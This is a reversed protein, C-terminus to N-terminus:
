RAPMPELARAASLVLEESSAAIGVYVGDIALFGARKGVLLMSGEPPVYGGGETVGPADIGNVHADTEIGKMESKTARNGSAAIM